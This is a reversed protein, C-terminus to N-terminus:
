KIKWFEIVGAESAAALLSQDQWFVAANWHDFIERVKAATQTNLLVASQEGCAVLLSGDPSFTMNKIGNNDMLLYARNTTRTKVQWFQIERETAVALTDGDASFAMQKVPAENQLKLTGTLTPGPLTYLQITSRESIALLKSGPSLALLSYTQDGLKRTARATKSDLLMPQRGGGAVLTNADIFAVGNLDQSAPGTLPVPSAGIQNLVLQGFDDPATWSRTDPAVQCLPLWEEQCTVKVLAQGTKLDFLRWGTNDGWEALTQGDISLRYRNGSFLILDDNKFITQQSASDIVQIGQTSLLGFRKGDPSYVAANISNASVKQWETPRQTKLDWERWYSREFLILKQGDASYVAGSMVGCMNSQHCSDLDFAQQTEFNYLGKKGSISVVVSRRDPSLVLNQPDPAFPLQVKSQSAGQYVEWQEPTAGQLLFLGGGLLSVQSDAPIRMPTKWIPQLTDTELIMWHDYDRGVMGHLGLWRGDPSFSLEKYYAGLSNTYTAKLTWSETNYIQITELDKAVALTKGDQTFDAVGFAQTQFVQRGDAINWITLSHNSLLAVWQGGAPYFVRSGQPAGDFTRQKAGQSVNWIELSADGAFPTGSPGYTSALSQSDPSFALGNVAGAGQLQQRMKGSPFSFLRMWGPGSGAAITKQDPSLALQTLNGIYRRTVGIEKLTQTDAVHYSADSALWGYLSGDNSVTQSVWYNSAGAVPSVSAKKWTGIDYAQISSCNGVLLTNGKSPFIVPMNLCQDQEEFVPSGDAVRWVRLTYGHTDVTALLNSDPSFAIWPSWQNAVNLRIHQKGQAVDWILVSGDKINIALSQSNPSFLGTYAENGAGSLIPTITMTHTNVLLSEGTKLTIVLNQGDRSAALANLEGKPLQVSKQPIGDEVGWIELLNKNGISALRDKGVFVTGFSFTQKRTNFEKWDSVRWVLDGTFNRYLLYRSDSSFFLEGGPWARQPDAMQELGASGLDFFKLMEMSPLNFIAVGWSSSIALLHNDPSFASYRASDGIGWVNAAKLQEVNQVTIKSGGQPVSGGEETFAGPASTNTDLLALIKPLALSSAFVATVCFLSIFLVALGILPRQAPTLPLRNLFTQVGARLKELPGPQPPRSPKPAPSVPEPSPPLSPASQLPPLPPAALVTPPTPQPTPAPDPVAQPQELNLLATQYLQNQPEYRVARKYCELKREPIDIIQGLWYWAQADRPNQGLKRKFFLEAAARQGAKFALVGEALEGYDPEPQPSLPVPGAPPTPQVIQVLPAPPVPQPTPTPRQSPTPQPTQPAPIPQPAPRKKRLFWLTGGVAALVLLGFVLCALALLLWKNDQLAALWGALGEPKGITITVAASNSQGNKDTTTLTLTHKGTSLQVRKQSGSGLPGDLSSSWQLTQPDASGDEPDYAYGTLVLQGQEFSSGDKPSLIVPHPANNLVSFPAPSIAQSVSLGRSTEVRVRARDSGPLGAPDIKYSTQTVNLALPVWTQGDDPSYSVTYTLSPDAQGELQWTITQQAGAKWTEGAKPSLLTLQAPNPDRALQAVQQGARLLVVSAIENQWPLVRSFGMEDVPGTEPQEFTLSFCDRQLAQGSADRTELCWEGEASLALPKSSTVRHAPLFSTKNTSQSVRGSIVLRQQPPPAATQSADAQPAPADRAGGQPAATSYSKFGQSLKRYNYPSVWEQSCYSMFDYTEQPLRLYFFSQSNVSSQGIHIGPVGISGLPMGEVKPYQNDADSPADENCNPDDKHPLNPTHALEKDRLTHGIEHALTEPGCSDTGAAVSSSFNTIGCLTKSQGAVWGYLRDPEQGGAWYGEQSVLSWYSNMEDLYALASNNSDKVYEFQLGPKVYIVGNQPRYTVDSAAVPYYTIVDEAGLAAANESVKSDQGEEAFKVWYIRLPHGPTFSIEQSAKTNEVDVELRISGNLWEDPLLFNLTKILDTQLAKWDSHELKSITYTLPSGPLEQGARYARLQGTYGKPRNCNEFCDLYVRALTPKNAILPVGKGDDSIVQLVEIHSIQVKSPTLLSFHLPAAEPPLTVQSSAPEFQGGEKQPSVTYTGAPLQEFRFSGDAQLPVKQLVKQGSQLTVWIGTLNSANQTTVSGTLTYSTSPQNQPQLTNLALWNLPTYSPTEVYSTKGLGPRLLEIRDTTNDQLLAAAIWGSSPSYLASRIFQGGEVLPGETAECLYFKSFFRDGQFAQILANSGDPSLWGTVGPMAVGPIEALNVTLMPRKNDGTKCFVQLSSDSYDGGLIHQGNQSLDFIIDSFAFPPQGPTAPIIKNGNVLLDLSRGWTSLGPSRINREGLEYSQNVGDTLRTTYSFSSAGLASLSQISLWKGDKSWSEVFGSGLPKKEASLPDFIFVQHGEKDDLPEPDATTFALVQRLISWQYPRQSIFGQNEACSANEQVLNPAAPPKAAFLASAANCYALWSGDSSWAPLTAAGDLQTNNGATDVLWVQANADIYALRSEDQPWSAQVASSTLPTDKVILQGPQGLSFSLLHKNYVLQHGSPSISYSTGEPEPATLPYTEQKTPLYLNLARNTSLYILLEAEEEFRASSLDSAPKPTPVPNFGYPSNTKGTFAIQFSAAKISLSSSGDAPNYLQIPFLGDSSFSLMALHLQDPAWGLPMDGPINLPTFTEGQTIDIQATQGQLQGLEILRFIVNKGDPHWLPSVAAYGQGPSYRRIIQGTPSILVLASGPAYGLGAAEDVLIKQSDASWHATGVAQQPSYVKGSAKEWIHFQGRGEYAADFFFLAAGDPAWEPGMLTAQGVPPVLEETQRGEFRFRWLGKPNTWLQNVDPGAPTYVLSQGDPTWAFSCAVHEILPTPNIDPFHSVWLTSDFSNQDEFRCFAMRSGDPAWKPNDYHINSTADNTVQIPRGSGLPAAWINKDESVYALWSDGSAQSGAQAQTINNPSFVALVILLVALFSGLIRKPM